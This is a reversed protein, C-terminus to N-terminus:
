ANAFQACSVTPREVAVATVDMPMPANLPQVPMVSNAGPSPESSSRIPAKAKSFLENRLTLREFVLTVSMSAPANLPQTCSAENVKEACTLFM